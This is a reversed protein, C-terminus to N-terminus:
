GPRMAKLAAAATAFRIREPLAVGQALLAAYAGHFVDGCGTTDVAAVAFAPQHRVPGGAARFWCGQEGCTVIAVQRQPSWLREVADAADQKGTLKCAFARSVILHDVLDLLEYFGPW